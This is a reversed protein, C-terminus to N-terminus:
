GHATEQPIPAGRRRWHALLEANWIPRRFGDPPEAGIDIAIPSLPPLAGLWAKAAGLDTESEREEAVRTQREAAAVVEGPASGDSTDALKVLTYAWPSEIVRGRAIEDLTRQCM